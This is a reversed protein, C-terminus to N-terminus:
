LPHGIAKGQFSGFLFTTDEWTKMVRPALISRLAMPASLRHTKTLLRTLQQAWIALQGGTMALHEQALGFTLNGLDGKGIAPLSFSNVM